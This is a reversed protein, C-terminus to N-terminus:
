LLKLPKKIGKMNKDFVYKKKIKRPYRVIKKIPM